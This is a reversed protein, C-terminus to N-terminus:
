QKTVARLLPSEEAETSVDNSDPLYGVVSSYHRIKEAERASSRQSMAGAARTIVEQCSGCLFCREEITAHTNTAVPIHKGLQQGSVATTQEEIKCGHM